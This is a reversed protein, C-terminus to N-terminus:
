CGLAFSGPFPSKPTSEKTGLIADLVELRANWDRPIGGSARVIGRSGALSRSKVGESTLRAKAGLVAEETGDHGCWGTYALHLWDGERLVKPHHGVETNRLCLCTGCWRAGAWGAPEARALQSGAEALGSIQLERSRPMAEPHRCM